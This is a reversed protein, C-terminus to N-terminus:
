MEKGLEFYNNNTEWLKIYYLLNDPIRQELERWLYAVIVEGTAVNEKFFPVEENLHKHDLERLVANVGRDFEALPLIMGTEEDPEGRVSVEIKYDHGHGLTNNCKDYVAINEEDSLNHAHLRHAASFYYVRSFTTNLKM